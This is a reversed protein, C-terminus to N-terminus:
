LVLDALDSRLGVVAEKLRIVVTTHHLAFRKAIQM